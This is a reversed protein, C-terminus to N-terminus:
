RYGFAYMDLTDLAREHIFRLLVGAPVSYNTAWLASAIAGPSVASHSSM